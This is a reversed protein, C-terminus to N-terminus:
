AFRGCELMLWRLFKYEQARKIIESPTAEVEKAFFEDEAMKRASNAYGAPIVTLDKSVNAGLAMCVKDAIDLNTWPVERYLIRYIWRQGIGSRMALVLPEETSTEEILQAIEWTAVGSYDAESM